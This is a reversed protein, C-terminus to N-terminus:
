IQGGVLGFLISLPILALAAAVIFGLAKSVSIMKSTFSPNSWGLTQISSQIAHSLHFGLLIVAIVYAISIVPERFGLVVMKYVDHREMIVNGKVAASNEIKGFNDATTEPATVVTGSNQYYEKHNYQDPNTIGMTFHALHYVLFAFIMIGTWIMTRSSLRSKVYNKVHYKTPKSGLNLLKLRISTIIHLLLALILGARIIWLVEGLSQLFHAYTNYVERGMFVQMNGVTHGFIFLVLIIGTVAMVVKSLITSKLYNFLAM